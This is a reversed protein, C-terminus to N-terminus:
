CSQAPRGEAGVKPWDRVHPLHEFDSDQTRVLSDRARAAVFAIGDAMPIRPEAGLRGADHALSAELELVAGHHQRAATGRLAAEIGRQPMMRRFVEAVCISATALTTSDEIAV